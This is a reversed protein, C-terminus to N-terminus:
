DELINKDSNTLTENIITKKKPVANRATTATISGSCSVKYPNKSCWECPSDGIYPETSTLYRKYFDCEACNNSESVPTLTSLNDGYSILLGRNLVSSQYHICECRMKIFSDSPVDISNLHKMFEEKYKCVTNHICSSCDEKVNGIYSLGGGNFNSRGFSRSNYTNNYLSDCSTYGIYGCHSCEYKYKPPNSTLIMTTDVKADAGCKECKYFTDFSNSPIVQM